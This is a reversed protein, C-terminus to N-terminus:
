PNSMTPIHQTVCVVSKKSVDTMVNYNCQKSILCAWWQLHRRRKLARPLQKNLRVIPDERDRARTLGLWSITEKDATVQKPSPPQGICPMPSLSRHRVKSPMLPRANPGLHMWSLFM